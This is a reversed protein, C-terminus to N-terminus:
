ISSSKENKKCFNKCCLNRNQEFLPATSNPCLTKVRHHFFVGVETAYVLNLTKWIAALVGLNLSSAGVLLEQSKEM